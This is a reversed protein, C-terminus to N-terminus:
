AGVQSKTLLIEVAAAVAEEEVHGCAAVRVDLLRRVDVMNESATPEIEHPVWASFSIKTQPRSTVIIKVFSPLSQFRCPSLAITRSVNTNFDVNPTM